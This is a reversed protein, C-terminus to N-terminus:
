ASRNQMEFKARHICGYLPLRKNTALVVPVRAIRDSHACRDAYYRKLRTMLLDKPMNMLVGGWLIVAKDCNFTLAANGCFNALIECFLEITDIAAQDKGSTALTLIDNTSISYNPEAAYDERRFFNYMSQMGSHSLVEEYSIKGNFSGRDSLFKYQERTEPSMTHHGGESSIIFPYGNMMLDDVLCALGLGTGPGCIISRTARKQGRVAAASRFRGYLQEYDDPQLGVEFLFLVGYGLAEFDNILSSSAAHGHDVLIANVTAVDVDWGVLNTPVAQKHDTPGAIGLVAHDIRQGTLEGDAIEGLFHDMMHYFDEYNSTDLNAEILFGTDRAATNEHSTDYVAWDCTTGGLDCCLILM